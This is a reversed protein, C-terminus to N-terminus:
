PVVRTDVNGHWVFVKKRRIEDISDIIGLKENAIM